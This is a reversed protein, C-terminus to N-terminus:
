FCTQGAGCTDTEPFLVPEYDADSRGFVATGVEIGREMLVAEYGAEYKGLAATQFFNAPTLWADYGADYQGFKRAGIVIGRDALVSEYDADSTGLAKDVVGLAGVTINYVHAHADADIKASIIKDVVKLEIEELMTADALVPSALACVAAGVIAIKSSIM